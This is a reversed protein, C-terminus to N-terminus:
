GCLHSIRMQPSTKGPHDVRRNPTDARSNLVRRDQGERTRGWDAGVLDGNELQRVGSTWAGMRSELEYTQFAEPDSHTPLRWTFSRMRNIQNHLAVKDVVSHDQSETVIGPGLGSIIRAVSDFENRLKALMSSPSPPQTSLFDTLQNRFSNLALSGSPHSERDALAISSDLLSLINVELPSSVANRRSKEPREYPQTDTTRSIGERSEPIATAPPLPPHRRQTTMPDLQPLAYQLRHTQKSDSSEEVPLVSQFGSPRLQDARLASLSAAEQKIDISDQGGTTTKSSQPAQCTTSDTSERSSTPPSPPHYQPRSLQSRGGRDHASPKATVHASRKNSGDKQPGRVGKQRKSPRGEELRQGGFETIFGLRSSPIKPQTPNFASKQIDSASTQIFIFEKTNSRPEGDEPNRNEPLRDMEFMPYLSYSTSFILHAKKPWWYTM